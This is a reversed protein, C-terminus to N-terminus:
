LRHDHFVKLSQHLGMDLGENSANATGIHYPSHHGLLQTTNWSWTGSLDTAFTTVHQQHTSSGMSYSHKWQVTSNSRFTVKLCRWVVPVKGWAGPVEWPVQPVLHNRPQKTPELFTGTHPPQVKWYIQSKKPPPQQELLPNENDVNCQSLVWSNVVPHNKHKSASASISPHLWYHSLSTCNSSLM